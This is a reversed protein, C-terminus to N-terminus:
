PKFRKLHEPAIFMDDKNKSYNFNKFDASYLSIIKNVAEFTLYGRYKQYSNSSNMHTNENKLKELDAYQENNVAKLMLFSYFDNLAELYFIKDFQDIGKSPSLQKMIPTIHHDKCKRISRLFIMFDHYSFDKKNKFYPYARHAKNSFMSLVRSFPNRVLLVKEYKVWGNPPQRYKKFLKDNVMSSRIAEKDLQCYAISKVVTHTGCKPPVHVALKLLRSFFINM